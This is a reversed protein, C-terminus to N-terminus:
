DNDMQASGPIDVDVIAVFDIKLDDTIRKLLGTIRCGQLGDDPEGTDPEAFANMCATAGSSTEIAILEDYLANPARDIAEVVAEANRAFRDSVEPFGEDDILDDFGSGDGGNFLELYAATNARVNALSNRAYKSEVREPCAVGSCGDNIGTPIGLKADKVLTDMAFIADTVLQLTEGSRGEDLFEERYEDWQEVIAGAADAADNAIALALDCRARRRETEDLENWGATSPVQSACTHTMEDNFLLYEIAGFGRQNLSRSGLDFDSDEDATLAASQDIGCTSIPGASFSLLRHRLAEGNALTPGIVHIETAQVRAMAERWRDRATSRAGEEETGGIAACLGAVPGDEAAFAGAEELLAAYNPAIVNDAFDTLMATTDFEPDPPPDPTTAAPPSPSPADSGGGGCGTVAFAFAFLACLATAPLLRNLAAQRPEHRQSAANGHDHRDAM